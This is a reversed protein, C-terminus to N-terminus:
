PRLVPHQKVLNALEFIFTDYPEQVHLMVRTYHGTQFDQSADCEPEYDWVAGPFDAVIVAAELPSCYYALPEEYDFSGWPNHVDVYGEERQLSDSGEPDDWWYEERTARLEIIM